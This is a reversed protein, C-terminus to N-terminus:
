SKITILYVGLLIIYVVALLFIGKRIGIMFVAGFVFPGATQSINDFTSYVGMARGTGYAKVEEMSSFCISLASFGFSDAIGMFLPVAAMSLNEYFVVFLLMTGIYITAAFIVSGKVKMKKSVCSTLFPGFYIVCIGNLLFLQGIVTESIGQKEAFLPLFYSLFYGYLTYPVMACLFFILLNKKSLFQLINMSRGEEQKAEKKLEPYIINKKLVVYMIVFAGFAIMAAIFYVKLYGLVSALLSGITTGVTLGALAGSNYFSFGETSEKEPCAAILTNFGVLLFGMGMGILAKAGIFSFLANSIGAAALGVTFLLSGGLLIKRFGFKELFFGGLFSFVATALVETSVPVAAMVQQPIGLFTVAMQGALMPLFSTAMCDAMFILFIIPRVMYIGLKLKKQGLNKAIAMEKKHKERYFWLFSIETFILIIIAIMSIINLVMNRLVKSYAEQFAYLDTGVEMAAVVNGNKDFVPSLVYTWIGETNEIWDFAIQRGTEYLEKYESDYESNSIKHYTESYEYDYDLPYVAGVTDELYLCSYIIKNEAVRNLVCYLGKNWGNSSHFTHLIATRVREYAQSDYDQPANIQQVDLPDLNQCALEAISSMNNMVQTRYQKQMGDMVTSVSVGAIIVAVVIILINNRTMETVTFKLKVVKYVVTVTMMAALIVTILVLARFSMYGKSYTISIKGEEKKSTNGYIMPKTNTDFINIAYVDANEITTLIQNSSMDLNYFIRSNGLNELDTRELVIGTDGEPTIFGIHRLGIDTFYLTKNESVSINWPISFFEKTNHEDGRYLVTISSDDHIQIIEATKTVAYISNEKEEIEYSVCDRTNYPIEKLTKLRGDAFSIEQLAIGEAEVFVFKLGQSSVRLGQIRGATVPRNSVEYEIEYVISDLKGKNDFKLIREKEIDSKDLSAVTDVLYLSGDLGTKIDEAAYFSNGNRDGGIIEYLYDGEKTFAAVQKKARHIVYINGLTDVTSDSLHDLYFQKNFPNEKLYKIHFGAFIFCIVAIMGFLFIRKHQRDM